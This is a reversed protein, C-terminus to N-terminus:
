ADLVEHMQLLFDSVFRHLSNNEARLAAVEQALERLEERNSNGATEYQDFRDALEKPM